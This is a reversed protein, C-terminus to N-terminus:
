TESILNIDVFSSVAPKVKLEVLRTKLGISSFKILILEDRSELFKKISGTFYFRFYNLFEYSLRRGCSYLEFHKAIEINSNKLSDGNLKCFEIKFNEIKGSYDDPVRVNIDILFTKFDGLKDDTQIIKNGLIHSYLYSYTPHKNKVNRICKKPIQAIGPFNNMEPFISYHMANVYIYQAIKIEKINEAPLRYNEQYDKKISQTSLFNFKASSIPVAGDDEYQGTGSVFIGLPNLINAVGIINLFRVNEKFYDLIYQNDPNIVATRFDYIVDSGFMMNDLENKGFRFPLKVKCNEFLQKIEFGWKASKAGWFPTGLTIFVDLYKIIQPNSYGQNSKLSQFLWIAAILGGQSHTIFSFKDDEKFSDKTVSKEIVINIDKAFDYVGKQDDGTYYEIYKIIYKTRNDKDNLVRRLAKACFGFHKRSGGIGHILFIIHKKRRSLFM